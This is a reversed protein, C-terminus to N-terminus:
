ALQKKRSKLTGSPLEQHEADRWIQDKSSSGKALWRPKATMAFRAGAVFALCAANALAGDSM